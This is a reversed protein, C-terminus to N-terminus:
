KFPKQSAYSVCTPPAQYSKSDPEVHISFTEDFSGISTFLNKFYRELQQTIEASATKDNDQNPDPLFNKMMLLQQSIRITLNQIVTQKKTYCKQPRDAGQIMNKSHQKCRSGQCNARNTSCKKARDAEQTDITNYNIALIDLTDMTEINPMGLLAQGNGTVVFFSTLKHKNNYQIKVKCISM